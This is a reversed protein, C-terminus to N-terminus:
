VLSDPAASDTPAPEPLPRHTTVMGAEVLMSYILAELEEHPMTRVEASFIMWASDYQANFRPIQARLIEYVRRRVRNRGVASKIVKKSIVVAFRSHHRRSNKAYKVTLFHTRIARGNKYVYRLSGHGHFRHRTPLM